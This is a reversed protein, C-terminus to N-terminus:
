LRDKLWSAKLLVATFSRDSFRMVEGGNESPTDMTLLANVYAAQGAEFNTVVVWEAAELSSKLAAAPPFDIVRRDSYWHIQPVSATIILADGASHQRLFEGAQRLPPYGLVTGDSLIMRVSTSNEVYMWSLLMALLLAPVATLRDPVLQRLGVAAVICLFPLAASM